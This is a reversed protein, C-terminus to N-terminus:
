LVDNIGVLKSETSSGTNTKQGRYMSMAAGTGSSVMKGAHSKCDWHLSHAANVWRGIISLSDVTLVLKM